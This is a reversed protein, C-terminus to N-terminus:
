VVVSWEELCKSRNMFQLHLEGQEWTAGSLEKRMRRLNEDLELEEKEKVLSPSPAAFSVESMTDNLMSASAQAPEFASRSSAFSHQQRQKLQMHRPIPDALRVRISEMSEANMNGLLNGPANNDLFSYSKNGRYRDSMASSPRTHPEPTEPLPNYKFDGLQLVVIAHFYPAHIGHM